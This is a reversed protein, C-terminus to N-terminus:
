YNFQKLLNHTRVETSEDFKSIQKVLDANSYSIRDKIHESIKKFYAQFGSLQKDSYRMSTFQHNLDEITKGNAMLSRVAQLLSESKKGISTKPKIRKIEDIEQEVNIFIIEEEEIDTDGRAPPLSDFSLSSTESM